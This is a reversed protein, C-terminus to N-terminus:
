KRVAGKERLDSRAFDRWCYLPKSANPATEDPAMQKIEATVRSRNQVAVAWLDSALNELQGVIRLYQIPQVAKFSDIVCIRLTAEKDALAPLSL